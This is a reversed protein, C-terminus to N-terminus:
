ARVPTENLEGILKDADERNRPTAGAYKALLGGVHVGSTRNFISHGVTAVVFEKKPGWAIRLSVNAKPFLTYILFRNGAPLNDADHLDTVIVQGEVRSYHRMSKLFAEREKVEPLELVDGLEGDRLADILKM